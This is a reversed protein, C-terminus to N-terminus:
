PSLREGGEGVAYFGPNLWEDIEHHFALLSGTLGALFLFLATALGVYRHLLVLVPRM